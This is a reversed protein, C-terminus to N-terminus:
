KKRPFIEGKVLKLISILFELFQLQTNEPGACTLHCIKKQVSVLRTEISGWIVPDRSSGTKNQSSNELHLCLKISIRCMEEDIDGPVTVMLDM